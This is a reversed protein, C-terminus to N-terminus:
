TFDESMHKGDVSDVKDRESTIKSFETNNIIVEHTHVKGEDDKEIEVTKTKIEIM